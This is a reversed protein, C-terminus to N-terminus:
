MVSVVFLNGTRDGGTRDCRSRKQSANCVVKDDDYSISFAGQQGKQLHPKHTM